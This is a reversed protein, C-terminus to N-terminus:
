TFNDFFELTGNSDIYKINVFIEAFDFTKNNSEAFPLQTTNLSLYNFFLYRTDGCFSM